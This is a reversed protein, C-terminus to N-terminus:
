SLYAIGAFAASGFSILINNNDPYTVAGIWEANASDFVRIGAPKYGLNHNITWTSAATNQIHTHNGLIIIQNVLFSKDILSRDTFLPSYDAAYNIISHQNNTM